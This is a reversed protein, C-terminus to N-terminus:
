ELRDTLDVLRSAEALSTEGDLVHRIADDALTRFGANRAFKSIEHCTAAQAIMQDIEIGIRLVEFIGIRGKYGVFNCEECGGPRHLSKPKPTSIGLLQREAKSPAYPERCTKCLRRVLRQSVIGIINGAM